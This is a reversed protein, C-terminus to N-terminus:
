VGESCYDITIAMSKYGYLTFEELYYSIAYRSCRRNKNNKNNYRFGSIAAELRLRFLQNTGFSFFLFSFKACLVNSHTYAAQFLLYVNCFWLWMVFVTIGSNVSKENRIGISKMGFCGFLVIWDDGMMKWAM